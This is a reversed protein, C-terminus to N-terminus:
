EGDLLLPGALEQWREAVVKEYGRESRFSIYPNGLRLEIGPVIEGTAPDVPQGYSRTAVFIKEQFAPAVSEVIETPYNKKVWRRFAQEDVVAPTQNGRSKSVKGLRTGDDLTAAKSDGEDLAHLFDASLVGEVERIRHKLARLVALKV